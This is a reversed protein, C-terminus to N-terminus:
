RSAQCCSCGVKDTDLTAFFIENVKDDSEVGMSKGMAQCLQNFFTPCVGWGTACLNFEQWLARISEDPVENMRPAAFVLMFNLSPPTHSLVHLGLANCFTNPAPRSNVSAALHPPGKRFKSSCLFHPVYASLLTHGGIVQVQFGLLIYIYVLQHTAKVPGTGVCGCNM